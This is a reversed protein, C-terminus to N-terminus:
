CLNRYNDLVKCAKLFKEEQNALYQEPTLNTRKSVLKQRNLASQRRVQKRHAAGEPDDFEFLKELYRPPPFARSGQKTGIVIRSVESDLGHDKYYQSALGPRRSCVTYPEQLNFKDYIYKGEGKIKKMMYRAVYCCSEWTVPAVVNYGYPWIKEISNSNKYDYGLKSKKYFKLDDLDLHLGFVILHYHPRASDSGYEGCAFFRIRDDPHQRRLRKLFLQLDRKCLSHSWATVLGTDPDVVPRLVHLSPIEGRKSSQEDGISDIHDDSITLTIFHCSDLDDKYSELELMLRNAWERAYDMRCGTCQGCPIDIFEPKCGPDSASWVWLPTDYESKNLLKVPHSNVGVGSRGMFQIAKLPHFCSM